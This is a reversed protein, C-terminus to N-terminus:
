FAKNCVRKTEPANSYFSPPLSSNDGGRQGLEQLLPDGVSLITTNPVAFQPCNESLRM